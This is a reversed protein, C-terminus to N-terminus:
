QERCLKLFDEGDGQRGSGVVEIGDGEGCCEGAEVNIDNVANISV